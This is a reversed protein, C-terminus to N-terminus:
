VAVLGARPIRFPYAGPADTDVPAVRATTDDLELIELTNVGDAHLNVRDGPQM